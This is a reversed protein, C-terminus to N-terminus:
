RTSAVTAITKKASRLLALTAFATSVPGGETGNWSGDAEQTSKLMAVIDNYMGVIQEIRSM